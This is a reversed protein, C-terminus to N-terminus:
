PQRAYATFSAAFVTVPEVSRQFEAGWRAVDDPTALGEAILTDRAAWAPGRLGPPPTVVDIRGQFHVLQLGAATLLEDLRTGVSLDNGLRRHLEEYRDMLDTLASGSMGRFRSAAADIDTLFVSGGPRALTALHDVVAQEAGGNHALVHRLM